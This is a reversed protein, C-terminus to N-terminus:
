WMPLGRHFGQTQQQIGPAKNSSAAKAQGTEYRQKSAAPSLDCVNAEGGSSEIFGLEIYNTDSKRIKSPKPTDSSTPKLYKDM